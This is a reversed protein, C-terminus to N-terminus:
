RVETRTKAHPAFALLGAGAAISALAVWQSADLLDRAYPQQPPRLMELPFALVGAAVLAIGAMRGPPHRKGFPSYMLGLLVGCLVLAAIMSYIAVPHAREGTPLGAVHIGWPLRTPLGAGVGSAGSSAGRDSSM